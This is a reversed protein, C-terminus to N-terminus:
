SAHASRRPRVERRYRDAAGLRAYRCRSNARAELVRLDARIDSLEIAMRDRRERLDRYRALELPALYTETREKIM